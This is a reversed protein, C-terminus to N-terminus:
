LENEKKFRRLIPIVVIKLAMHTNLNDLDKDPIINGDSDKRIFGGRFLVTDQLEPINVTVDGLEITTGEIDKLTFHRLEPVKYARAISLTGDENKLLIPEKLYNEKTIIM